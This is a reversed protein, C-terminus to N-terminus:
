GKLNHWKRAVHVLFSHHFDVSSSSSLLKMALRGMIKPHGREKRLFAHDCMTLFSTLASKGLVSRCQVAHTLPQLLDCIKVPFALLISVLTEYLFNGEDSSSEGWHRTAAPVTVSLSWNVLPARKSIQARRIRIFLGLTCLSYCHCSFLVELICFWWSHISQISCFAYTYQVKEQWNQDWEEIHVKGHESFEVCILLGRLMRSKMELSETWCNLATKQWKKRGPRGWSNLVLKLKLWEHVVPSSKIRAYTALIGFRGTQQFINQKDRKEFDSWHLFIDGCFHM